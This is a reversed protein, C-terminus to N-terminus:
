QQCLSMTYPEEGEKMVVSALQQNDCRFLPKKRFALDREARSKNEEDEEQDMDNAERM